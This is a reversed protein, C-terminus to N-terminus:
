APGTATPLFVVSEVPQGDCTALLLKRTSSADDTRDLQERRLRDISLVGSLRDILRHSVGTVQDLRSPRRRHLDAMLRRAQVPTGGHELVLASLTSPTLGIANMSM